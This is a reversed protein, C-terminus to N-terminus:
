RLLKSKLDALRQPQGSFIQQPTKGRYAKGGAARVTLSKFLYTLPLTTYALMQATEAEALPNHPKLMYVIM